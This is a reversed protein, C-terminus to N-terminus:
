REAGESVDLQGSVRRPFFLWGGFLFLACAVPYGIVALVYPHAVTGERVAVHIAWYIEPVAPVVASLAAVVWARIGEHANFAVVVTTLHIVLGLLLLVWWGIDGVLLRAKRLNERIRSDSDFIDSPNVSM